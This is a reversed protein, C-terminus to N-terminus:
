RKIRRRAVVALGILGSGLLLMSAPEPVANVTFDLNDFIPWGSTLSPTSFGGNGGTIDNNFNLGPWSQTRITADLAINSSAVSTVPGLSLISLPNQPALANMYDSNAGNVEVVLRISGDTASTLGVQIAADRDYNNASDEYVLGMLMGDNSLGAQTTFSYGGMIQGTAWDFFAADAPLLPGETVLVMPFGQANNFLVGSVDNVRQATIATVENFSTGAGITTSSPGEITNVGVVGFFIDGVSVTGSSDLDMWYEASNDSLLTNTGNTNFLGAVQTAQASGVMALGLAFIGLFLVLKKM